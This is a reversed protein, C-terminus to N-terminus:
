ELIKALFLGALGIVVMTGIFWFLGFVLGSWNRRTRIFHVPISLPGFAVVAVWFTAPPFGRRAELGTLQREDRRVVWLTLCIQLAASLVLELVEAM